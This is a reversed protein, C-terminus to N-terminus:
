LSPILGQLIFCFSKRGTLSTAYKMLRELVQKARQLVTILDLM